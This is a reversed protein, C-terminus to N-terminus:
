CTAGIVTSLAIPQPLGQNLTALKTLVGFVNLAVGAAVNPASRVEPAQVGGDRAREGDLFSKLELKAQFSQVGPVFRLERIGVGAGTGAIGREAGDRAGDSGAGADVTSAAAACNCEGRLEDELRISGLTPEHEYLTWGAKKM